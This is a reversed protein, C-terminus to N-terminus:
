SSDSSNSADSESNDSTDSESNDGADSESDGGADSKSDSGADSKSDDGADSESNNSADTESDDSTRDRGQDPEDEDSQESAEAEAEDEARNQGAGDSDSDAAAFDEPSALNGSEDADDNGALDKISILIEGDPDPSPLGPSPEEDSAESGTGHAAKPTALGLAEAKPNPENIRVPSNHGVAQLPVKALPKPRRRPRPAPAANPYEPPKVPEPPWQVTYRKFWNNPGHGLKKQRQWYGKLNPDNAPDYVEQYVPANVLGFKPRRTVAEATTPNIRQLLSDEKTADLVGPLLGRPSDGRYNAPRGYYRFSLSKLAKDSYYKHDLQGKKEEEHEM